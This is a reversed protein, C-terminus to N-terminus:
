RAPQAADPTRCRRGTCGRHVFPSDQLSLSICKLRLELADPRPQVFERGIGVFLLLLQPESGLLFPAGNPVRHAGNTQARVPTGPSRPPFHGHFETDDDGMGVGFRYEVGQPTRQIGDFLVIGHADEKDLLPTSISRM